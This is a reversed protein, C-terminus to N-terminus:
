STAIDVTVRTTIRHQDTPRDIL